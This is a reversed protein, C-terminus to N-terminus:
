NASGAENIEHPMKLTLQPGMMDNFTQLIVGCSKNGDFL